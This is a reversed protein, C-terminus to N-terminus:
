TGRAVPILPMLVCFQVFSSTGTRPLSPLQRMGVSWCVSPLAWRVYKEGGWVGTSILLSSGPSTICSQLEGPRSCLEQQQNQM